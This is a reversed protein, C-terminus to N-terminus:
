RGQEKLTRFFAEPDDVERLRSIWSMNAFDLGDAVGAAYIKHVADHLGPLAEGLRDPIASKKKPMIIRREANSDKQAEM